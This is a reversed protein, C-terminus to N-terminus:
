GKTYSMMVDIRGNRVQFIDLGRSHGSNKAAAQWQYARRLLCRFGYGLLEETKVQVQPFQAFFEQWYAMIAAQGSLVTGDPAPSATEFTCDDSMLHMMATVDHRNFAENFQVVLRVAVELQSLRTPSM